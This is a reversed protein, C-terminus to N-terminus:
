EIVRSALHIDYQANGIIVHMLLAREYYRLCISSFILCTMFLLLGPTMSLSQDSRTRENVSSQDPPRQIQIQTKSGIFSGRKRIVCKRLRNFEWHHITTLWLIAITNATINIITQKSLIMIIPLQQHIVKDTNVSM